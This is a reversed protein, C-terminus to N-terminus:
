HRGRSPRSKEELEKVRKPLTVLAKWVPIQELLKVIDGVSFGIM